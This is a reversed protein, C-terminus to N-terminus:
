NNNANGGKEAPETEQQMKKDSEASADADYNCKPSTSPNSYPNQNPNSSSSLLTLENAADTSNNANVTQLKTETEMLKEATPPASRTLSVASSSPSLYHPQVSPLREVDLQDHHTFMSATTSATEITLRQVRNPNPFPRRNELILKIDRASQWWRYWPTLQSKILMYVNAFYVTITMFLFFLMWSKTWLKSLGWSQTHMAYYQIGVLLTGIIGFAVLTLLSFMQCDEQLARRSMARSYWMRLSQLCTYRLTQETNYHFQCLECITCRSTSIWRELCHVHVYTLSGKCLCPSVLQEPNDANHCIRCVLSGISPLSESSNAEVCDLNLNNCQTGSDECRSLKPITQNSGTSIATSINAAALAAETSALVHGVSDVNQSLIQFQVNPKLGLSISCGAKEIPQSEDQKIAAPQSETPEKSSICTEIVIISPPTEDASSNSVLEDIDLQLFTDPKVSDKGGTASDSTYPVTKEDSGFRESEM